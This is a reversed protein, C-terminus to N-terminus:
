NEGETYNPNVTRTWGSRLTQDSLDPLTSNINTGEWNLNEYVAILALGAATGRDFAVRNSISTSTTNLAMNQIDQRLMEQDLGRLGVFNNNSYIYGRLEFTIAGGYILKEFLASIEQADAPNENEPANPGDYEVYRSDWVRWEDAIAILWENQLALYIPEFVQNWDVPAGHRITNNEVGLFQDGFIYTTNYRNASRFQIVAKLTQQIQYANEFNYKEVATEDNFFDEITMEGKNTMLYGDSVNVRSGIAGMDNQITGWGVLSSESRSGSTNEPTHQDSMLEVYDELQLRYNITADRIINTDAYDGLLANSMASTTGLPISKYGYNNFQATFEPWDIYFVIEISAGEYSIQIDFKGVKDTYLRYNALNLGNGRISIAPNTINFVETEGDDYTITIEKSSLDVQTGLNYWLQPAWDIDISEVESVRRACGAVTLFFALTIVLLILKKM